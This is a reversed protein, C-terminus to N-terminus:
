QQAIRLLTFIIGGIFLLLVIGWAWALTTTRKTGEVYASDEVGDVPNAGGSLDQQKQKERLEATIREQLDSREDTKSIYLAM